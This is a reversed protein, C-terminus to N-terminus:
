PWSQSPQYGPSRARLFTIHGLGTDAPLTFTSEIIVTPLIETLMNDHIQFRPTNYNCTAEWLTAWGDAQKEVNGQDSLPRVSAGNGDPIFEALDDVIYNDGPADHPGDPERPIDAEWKVPAVPSSTWDEAGRLYRFAAKTPRTKNASGEVTTAVM